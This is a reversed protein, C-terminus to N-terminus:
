STPQNADAQRSEASPRVDQVLDDATRITRDPGSSVLAYRVQDGVRRVRLKLPQNWGDTFYKSPTHPAFISGVAYEGDEVPLNVIPRNKLSEEECQRVHGVFLHLHDRTVADPDLYIKTGLTFALYMAIGGLLLSTAGLLRLPWKGVRVVGALHTRWRAYPLIMQALVCAGTVALVIGGFWLNTVPKTVSAAVYALHVFPTHSPIKSYALIKM